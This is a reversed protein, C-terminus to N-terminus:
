IKSNKIIFRDFLALVAPLLILILLASCLTGQSLTKCIKAAIASAFCGVILTVIILISASTLITHISKNYSCIISNKINMSKRHEIYYSTYLIAYDITAGMLISQVILLAIFYVNGGTFSLIGMTLYVACQILLVLIIPIILSKFTIAVVIFIALMTLITIFDMERNFTKSMDYAMPSNGILYVNDMNNGLENQINKIFNFTKNSELDFNTNIVVRSYKGGILLEKAKKIDRKSNTVRVRIDDDIFDNFREDKFITKNLYNVFEEVSLKWNTNYERQSGYYIYLLELLSQDIDKTLKSLIAVMEDNTYLVNMLSANMVGDITKLKDVKSKDIRKSLEDNNVVESLLFDVLEKLSISSPNRRYDYLSFVLKLENENMGLVQALDSPNYSYNNVSASMVSNLLTLKNVMGKDIRNALISDNKHSLLFSVFEQPSLKIDSYNLLYLSYISKLINKDIGLLDAMENYIFGVNNFTSDMITRILLLNNIKDSELGMKDKNDLIFCVFEYPTMKWNDTNNNVLDILSYLCCIYDKDVGLISAVDSATYLNPDSMLQQDNALLVIKSIDVDNLYTTNNKIYITTTVLKELTMKTDVDVNKYRFYLIQKVQELSMGFINKLGDATMKENIIGMNSFTKLVNINNRVNEDFNTSYLPDNLVRDSTFNAFESIKMRLNIENQTIYYLYLERVVGDDLGFLDAQELFSMEGKIVNVNIFNALIKLNNKTSDDIGDGYKSKLVDNNMFDIFQRLTMTNSRNLSNYYIFIEEVESSSMDLISAVEDVTRKKNILDVDTFNNLREINGKVTSDLNIDENKYVDELIFNIFESFTIKNEETQNYYKYFILKLLYLDVDMESGLDKMRKNLENYGLREGITNSYCLVNNVGSKAELSRCYDAMKKENDNKYVIAMQNNTKFVEKIKNNEDDTYLIKLSGKTFFSFIFVLVFILLSIKRLRYSFKGLTDLKINLSKKKTKTIFKDFILILAPLCTFICVLSLLVGKALVFGLDRGITFSMFVLALLGVITTISSSSISSFANSLAEKMAKVKDDKKEKEQNYRSMLMISYDMSLAMQLIASISSTINSVSDFIINTGDNLLVAILIVTLFLFPEVYSSCMVILVILACFVALVVIWIPLVEENSDAIDGSTYIDYDDYKEKVNSFVDRALISDDTDSVNIVYLTYDGRNYDAGEDYDVSDVGDIKTLERYIKEKDDISLGKFMLNFSSSDIEKLEKEMIDMGIRTESAKPLYKAIDHNINVKTMLFMSCISFIIFLFLIGYRKDIIFDTVKRM